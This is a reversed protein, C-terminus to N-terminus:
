TGARELIERVSKYAKYLIERETNFVPGDQEIFIFECNDARSPKEPEKSIGLKYTEVERYFPGVRKKRRNSRYTYAYLGHELLAMELAERIDIRELSEIKKAERISLIYKKNKVYIENGLAGYFKGNFWDLGFRIREILISNNM